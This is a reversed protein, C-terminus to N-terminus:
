GILQTLQELSHEWSFLTKVFDRNNPALKRDSSSLLRIIQEATEMADDSVTISLSADAPIGEMAASTAVVYKAM